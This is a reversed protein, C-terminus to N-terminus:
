ENVSLDAGHRLPTQPEGRSDNQYNPSVAAAYLAALLTHLM